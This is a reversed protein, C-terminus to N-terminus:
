DNNEYIDALFEKRMRDKDFEVKKEIMKRENISFDPITRTIQVPKMILQKVIELKGNFEYLPENKYRGNLFDIIYDKSFNNSEPFKIQEFIEKSFSHYALVIIGYALFCHYKLTKSYSARGFNKCLINVGESVHEINQELIGLLAEVLGKEFIPKKMLLFKEAKEKVKKAPYFEDDDTNYLICLLLNTAVVYMPYGNKALPIGKPYIRFVTDYEDCGLLYLAETISFCHDGGGSFQFLNSRAFQYYFNKITQYDNNKYAKEVEIDCLLNFYGYRVSFLLNKFEKKGEKIERIEEELTSFYENKYNEEINM